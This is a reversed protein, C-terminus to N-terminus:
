AGEAALERVRRLTARTSRRQVRGFILADLLSAARGEGLGADVESSLTVLSGDRDADVRLRTCVAPTADLTETAVERPADLVTVRSRLERHGPGRGRVTTVVLSGVRPPSPRSVRSVVGRRPDPSELLQVCAAFARAPPVALRLSRVTRRM